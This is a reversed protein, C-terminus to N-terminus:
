KKQGQEPLKEIVGSYNMWTRDRFNILLMAYGSNGATLVVKYDEKSDALQVDVEFMKKKEIWRKTMSKATLDFKVGGDNNFDAVYSRGYYPLNAVVRSSDFAMEYGYSLQNFSGLVSRASTAVFRFKGCKILEEVQVKETTKRSKKDGSEFGFLCFLGALVILILFTRKM